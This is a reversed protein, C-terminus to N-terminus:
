WAGGVNGVELRNDVLTLFASELNDTGSRRLLEQPTEHALVRGQRMLVLEDCRDAEDMIHSSVVITKGADRLKAFMDWIQNRLVPDVGATPEDLILVDPDGILACGLSLRSRQGGSLDRALYNRQRTLGVQSLVRNVTDRKVEFLAAFYRLNEVVTIDTYISAAQTAYGVRNRLVKDGAARGLVTVTGSDTMQAGVLCRMLTTKGCGSPGLLGTIIGRRITLNLSELVTTAGRVVTLEDVVIAPAIKTFTSTYATKAFDGRGASVRQSQHALAQRVAGEGSQGRCFASDQPDLARAQGARRTAPDVEVAGRGPRRQTSHLAGRLGETRSPPASGAHPGRARSLRDIAAAAREIDKRCQEKVALVILDINHGSLYTRRVEDLYPFEGTDFGGDVRTLAVLGDESLFREAVAPGLVEITSIEGAGRTTGNRDIRLLRLENLHL